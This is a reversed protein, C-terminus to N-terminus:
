ALQRWKRAVQWCENVLRHWPVLVQTDIGVKGDTMKFLMSATQVEKQAQRVRELLDNQEDKSLFPMTHSELLSSSRSFWYIFDELLPELIKKLLEKESSESSHM